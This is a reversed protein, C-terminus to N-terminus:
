SLHHIRSHPPSYNMVLAFRRPPPASKWTATVTISDTLSRPFTYLVVSLLGALLLAITGPEPVPTLLFNQTPMDGVALIQGKDNIDLAETLTVGLAPNILENLDRMVGNHYLFAHYSRQETTASTGVVEGKNNLSAGLSSLGGLTGLDVMAANSYLFAHWHGTDTAAEGTVQGANNVDFGDSGDGGLTGLDMMRGDSYLFADAAIGGGRPVSYGTVDGHDNIGYGRSGGLRSSPGDLTGLDIMVGDAYLFAHYFGTANQADGTVQGKNNIAIGSSGQGGLTGLDTTQGHSYLYAHIDSSHTQFSGTVQGLDNISHSYAGSGLTGLSAIFGKVCHANSEEAFCYILSGNTAQDDNNIAWFDGYYGPLKTISYSVTASQAFIASLLLGFAVQLYFKVIHSLRGRSVFSSSHTTPM